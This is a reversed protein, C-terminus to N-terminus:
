CITMGTSKCTATGANQVQGYLSDRFERWSIVDGKDGRWCKKVVNKLDAEIAVKSWVNVQSLMGQFATTENFGGGFVTQSRGIAFKGQGTLQAGTQFNRGWKRLAGNM